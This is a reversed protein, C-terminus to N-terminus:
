LMTTGVTQRQALQDTYIKHLQEEAMKCIREPDVAMQEISDKALDMSFMPDFTRRSLKVKGNSRYIVNCWEFKM